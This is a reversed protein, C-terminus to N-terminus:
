ISAAFGILFVFFCFLCFHIDVLGLDHDSRILLDLHLFEDFQFALGFGFHKLDKVFAEDVAQEVDLFKGLHNVVAVDLNDVALM